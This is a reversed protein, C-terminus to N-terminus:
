CRLDSFKAGPWLRFDAAQRGAWGRCGERKGLLLERVERSPPLFLQSSCDIAVSQSVSTRSSTVQKDHM